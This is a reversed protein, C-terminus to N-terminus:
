QWVGRHESGYGEINVAVGRRHESGCGEINVAM